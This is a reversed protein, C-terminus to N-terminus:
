KEQGEDAIIKRSNQALDENKEYNDNEWPRKGDCQELDRKYCEFKESFEKEETKVFRRKEKDVYYFKKGSNKFNAYVYLVPKKEKDSKDYVRNIICRDFSSNQLNELLTKLLSM